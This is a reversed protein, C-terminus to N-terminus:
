NLHVMTTVGNVMAGGLGLIAQDSVIGARNSAQSMASEISEILAPLNNVLGGVMTDPQQRADGRGLIVIGDDTLEIVAVRVMSGGVDIVTYTANAGGERKPLRKPIETIFKSLASLNPLNM